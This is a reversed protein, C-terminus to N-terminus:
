SENFIIRAVIALVIENKGSSTKIVKIEKM